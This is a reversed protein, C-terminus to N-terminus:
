SQAHLAVIIAEALGAAIVRLICYQCIIISVRYNDIQPSHRGAVIGPSRPADHRLAVFGYNKNPAIAVKMAVAYGPGIM